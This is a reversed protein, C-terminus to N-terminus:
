KVRGRLRTSVYLVIIGGLLTVLGTWAWFPQGTMFSGGLQGIGQFLWVVGILSALGGIIRLTWKM